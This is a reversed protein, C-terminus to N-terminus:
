PFFLCCKPRYYLIATLALIESIEKHPEQNKPNTEKTETNQLCCIYHVKANTKKPESSM